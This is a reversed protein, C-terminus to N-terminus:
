KLKNNCTHLVYHKCEQTSNTWIYIYLVGLEQFKSRTFTFHWTNQVRGPEKGTELMQHGKSDTGLRQGKGIEEVGWFIFPASM